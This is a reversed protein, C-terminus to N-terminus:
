QAHSQVQKAEADADFSLASTQTVMHEKYSLIDGLAAELAERNAARVADAELKEADLELRRQEYRHTAATLPLAMTSQLHAVQTALRDIEAAASSNELTTTDKLDANDKEVQELEVEGSELREALDAIGEKERTIREELIVDEGNKVGVAQRTRNRLEVIAPKVTTLCDPVPNDAAGNIEQEFDVDEFGEPAQPLLGLAEAKSKYRACTADAKTRRKSLDIELNQISAFKATARALVARQQETLQTRDSNISQIELPSMGQAAILSSLHKIQEHTEEREKRLEENRTTMIQFDTKKQDRRHELQSMWNNCKEIDNEHKKLQEKIKVLPDPQAVLKDWQTKLELAEKELETVRDRLKVRGTELASFFEELEESFSYDDMVLFKPYCKTVFEIWSASTAEDHDLDREDGPYPPDKIHLTPSSEFADERFQISEVLWHLMALMTPWSQQSGISQLASKSIDKVFPYMCQQLAAPVFQETGGVLKITHDFTAVIFKFILVFQNSTPQLLQKETAALSAGSKEPLTFNRQALFEVIESAYRQRNAKIERTDKQPRVSGLLTGGGLPTAAFNNSTQRRSSYSSTRRESAPYDMGRLVGPRNVSSMGLSSYMNTSRGVTAPAERPGGGHGQSFLQSGQSEQSSGPAISGRSLLPGSAGRNPAISISTTPSTVSEGHSLLSPHTGQAILAMSGPGHNAFAFDNALNNAHQVKISSKLIPGLPPSSYVTPLCEVSEATILVLKGRTPHLLQSLTQALKRNTIENLFPPDLVAIEVSGRLEEPFVDPEDLDYRVFSRGAMLAFRQDFELLRTSNRLEPYAHQFAVFGTPCCLFAVKIPTDLSTSSQSKLFSALHTAFPTSYWFQSIQWDEQFLKRFTEVDMVPKEVEEEEEILDPHVLVLAAANSQEELEKLEREREAEGLLFSDLLAQTAPDLHLSSSASLASSLSDSRHSRARPSSPLFPPSTALLSM